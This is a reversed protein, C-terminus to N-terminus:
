KSGNNEGKRSNIAVQIANALAKRAEVIQTQVSKLDARLADRASSADDKITSEKNITISYEKEMQAKLLTDAKEWQLKAEEIASNGAASGDTKTKLKELIQSMTLLSQLKASTWRSNINNLNNNINEVRGAKVKDKFKALKAKFNAAGSATKDKIAFEKAKPRTMIASSSSLGEAYVPYLPIYFTVSAAISFVLVALSLPLPKRM